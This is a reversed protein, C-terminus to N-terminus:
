SSSLTYLIVNLLLFGLTGYVINFIIRKMKQDRRINRELKNRGNFNVLGFLM